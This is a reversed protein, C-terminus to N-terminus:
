YNKLCEGYVETIQPLLKEVDFDRVYEILAKFEGYYVNHCNDFIKNFEDMTLFDLRKILQDFISNPLYWYCKLNNLIFNREVPFELILEFLEQCDDSELLDPDHYYSIVRDAIIRNYDYDNKIIYILIDINYCTLNGDDELLKFDLQQGYNQHIYTFLELNHNNALYINKFGNQRIQTVDYDFQNLLYQFIELSGFKFIKQFKYHHNLLFDIVTYDSLIPIIHISNIDIQDFICDADYYHILCYIFDACYGDIFFTYESKLLYTLTIIYEKDILLQILTTDLYIQEGYQIYSYENQIFDLMEQDSLTKVYNDAILDIENILKKRGKISKTGLIEKLENFLQLSFNQRLDDLKDYFDM